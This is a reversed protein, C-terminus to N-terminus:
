RYNIFAVCWLIFSASAAKIFKDEEPTPAGKKEELYTQSTHSLRLLGVMKTKVFDFPGDYLRELDDRM